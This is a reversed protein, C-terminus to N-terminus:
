VDNVSSSLILEPGNTFILDLITATTQTVRTNKNILQKFGIQTFIEIFLISDPTEAVCGHDVNFDGLVFM